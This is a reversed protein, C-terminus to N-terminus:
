KITNLTDCKVCTVNKCLVPNLGFETKLRHKRLVWSDRVWNERTFVICLKYKGNEKSGSETKHLFAPPTTSKYKQRKGNNEM